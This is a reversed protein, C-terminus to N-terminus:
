ILHLEILYGRRLLCPPVFKSWQFYESLEMYNEYGGVILSTYISNMTNVIYRESKSLFKAMERKSTGVSMLWAVIQEHELLECFPNVGLFRSINMQSDFSGDNTPYIAQIIKNEMGMFSLEDIKVYVSSKFPKLTLIFPQTIGGADMASLLVISKNMVRSDNEYRELRKGFCSVPINESLYKEKLSLLNEAYCFSLFDDSCDLFQGASNKIYWLGGHKCHYQYFSSSLDQSRQILDISNREAM